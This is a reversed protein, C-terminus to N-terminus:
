NVESLVIDKLGIGAALQHLQDQSTLYSTVAQVGEEPMRPLAARLWGAIYSTM